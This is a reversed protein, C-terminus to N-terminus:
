SECTTRFKAAPHAECIFYRTQGPDSALSVNNTESPFTIGDTSFPAVASHFGEIVGLGGLSSEAVYNAQTTEYINHYGNWIVTATDGDCVNYLGSDYTIVVNEPVPPSACEGFVKTEEKKFQGGSIKLSNDVHVEYYGDGQECCIGDGYSDLIEFQFCSVVPVVKTTSYLKEAETYGGGAAIQNGSSMDTLTWSTEYPYIDTKIDVKIITGGEGGCEGFTKTEEKGFQGGEIKLSNDIYVQYYGDGQGCCVGDGYSDLIEFQFCSVEPVVKTTSYLKEMSTYGGGAAIQDGSSMDTLTWSTERPYIDTKIDVKITTGGEGGCDGFTKTEEKDFQGGEIEL